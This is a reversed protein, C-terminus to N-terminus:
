DLDGYKGQQYEDYAEQIEKATNMVFPGRAVIPERNPKAHGFLIVAETSADITVSEGDEKFEVLNHKEASKGNITVKGKVVYLFIRRSTDVSTTLKGGETFHISTMVVDSISQLPAKDGEWIGSILNIKVKGEDRIITPISDKQLGIYAPATNKLKAPLNIWLQLIELEGGQAKFEKSSVESHVVGSGATMWQIGGETIVSEHGKTDKHLIDGKLIFTVTEFGKHPHPGFPLGRNHPKYIQHGHHNLFIFPELDEMRLSSTPIARFTILDNIPSSEAKHINKITRMNKQEDSKKFSINKSPIFCLSALVSIVVLHFITNM